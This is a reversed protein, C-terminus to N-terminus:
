VVATLWLGIRPRGPLNCVTGAVLAALGLWSLWHWDYGDPLWPLVGRLRNALCFGGALGVAAGLSSAAKGAFSKFLVLVGWAVGAAPLIVNRLVEQVLPLPPYQM